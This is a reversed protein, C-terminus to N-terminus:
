REDRATVWELVLFTIETIIMADIQKNAIKKQNKTLLDLSCM